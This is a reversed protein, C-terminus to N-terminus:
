LGIERAVRERWFDADGFLCAAQRARRYYLGMDHDRTTGIGGHIQVGVRTCRRYVDSMWAKAMAVESACPLGQEMLWTAYYILRKAHNTETWMEALYHQIIQFSGIPRGYQVREKAYAITNEVTWDAGGIMEACKAIAAQELLRIVVPWGRNVEGLVNGRPVITNNFNIENQKDDAITHLPTIRIGESKADIIFLTVSEEPSLSLDTRTACLFYDAVQADHIFLKTGNIVYGNNNAVAKTAIGVADYRASPETLALAFIAGGNAIKPLLDRKQEENGADLVPFTCVVTSFFLAILCARGMEELVVVLDMFNGGSGGYEEPIILGIWGLQAMKQWIDPRFGIPDEEIERVLKKPFEKALFDRAAERLIEQEETFDLNM